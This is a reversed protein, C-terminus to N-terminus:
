EEGGPTGILFSSKDSLVMQTSWAGEGEEGEEWHPWVGITGMHGMTAGLDLYLPFGAAAARECFTIDESGFGTKEFYPSGIAHFVESRVLMGSSGAAVIDVLGERPARGMTIPFWVPNGHEDVDKRNYAIPNFPAVRNLYLSAVIPQEHSLLRMLIEGDFVNDDDIFFVWEAGVELAGDVLRNRSNALDTGVSWRIQTNM